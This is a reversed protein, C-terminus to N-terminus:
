RLVVRLLQAIVYGLGFCVALFVAIGGLTILGGLFDFRNFPYPNPTPENPKM